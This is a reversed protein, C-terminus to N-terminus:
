PMTESELIEDREVDILAYILTTEGSVFSVSWVHDGQQETYTTWGDYGELAEDAGDVQYALNIADNRDSELADAESLINPDFIESIWVDENEEDVTAYVMVGEIGRYFVLQWRQDWRNWEPYVDWLNPTENLWALVEADNLVHIKLLELQAQYRENDLPLPAFSDLIELSDQNINAYGLWEEWSEDYFEIYWVGNEDPGSANAQYNPYQSLWEVFPDTATVTDILRQQVDEDQAAVGMMPAALGLAMVLLMMWRRLM